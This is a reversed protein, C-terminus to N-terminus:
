KLIDKAKKYLTDYREKSLGPGFGITKSLTEIENMKKKIGSKNNSNLSKLFNDYLSKREM